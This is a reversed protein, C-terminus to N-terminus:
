SDHFGASASHCAHRAVGKGKRHQCRHKQQAAAAPEAAVLDIFIGGTLRRFFPFKGSGIAIQHSRHGFLDACRHCFANGRKTKEVLAVPQCPIKFKPRALRDPDPARNDAQAGALAGRGPFQSGFLTGKDLKQDVFAGGIPGAVILPLPNKGTPQEPFGRGQINDLM